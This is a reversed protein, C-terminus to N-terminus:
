TSPATSGGFPTARNPPEAHARGGRRPYVMLIRGPEKSVVEADHPISADWVLYDGPGLEVVHDGQTMRWRGGLVVHHEDGPHAHLGTRSGPPAVAELIRIDRALGGDVEDAFGDGVAVRPRDDARVVRPPPTGDLLFWAIPVELAAGISALADLSPSAKDNEIQSLYGINLGSGAAVQALTLGREKRWRHVERGVRPSRANDASAKDV